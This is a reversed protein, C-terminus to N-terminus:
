IVCCFIEPSRSHRNSLYDRSISKNFVWTQINAECMLESYQNDSSVLKEDKQLFILRFQCNGNTSTWRRSAELIVDLGTFDAVEALGVTFGARKSFEDVEFANNLHRECIQKDLEDIAALMCQVIYHGPEHESDLAAVTAITSEHTTGHAILEVCEVREVPAMYLVGIIREPHTSGVCIQELSAGFVNIAIPTKDSITAEV